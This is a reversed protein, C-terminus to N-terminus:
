KWEEKVVFINPKKNGSEDITYGHIFWKDGRKYCKLHKKEFNREEKSSFGDLKGGFYRRLKTQEM